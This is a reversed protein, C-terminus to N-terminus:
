DKGDQPNDEVEVLKQKRVLRQPELITDETANGELLTQLESRVAEM